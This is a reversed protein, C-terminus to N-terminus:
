VLFVVIPYDGFNQQVYSLFRFMLLMRTVNSTQDPNGLLSRRADCYAFVFYERVYSQDLQVGYIRNVSTVVSSSIRTTVLVCRVM